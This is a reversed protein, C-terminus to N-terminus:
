LRFIISCLRLEIQQLKAFFGTTFYIAKIYPFDNRINDSVQNSKFYGMCTQNLVKEKKTWDLKISLVLTFKSYNWVQKVISVKLCVCFEVFYYLSGYITSWDKCSDSWSCLQGLREETKKGGEGFALLFIESM